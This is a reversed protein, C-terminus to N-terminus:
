RVARWKWVRRVEDPTEFYDEVVLEMEQGARLTGMDTGRACQGLVIMQEEALEVAAVGYPEFPDLAPYPPPPAFRNDTFSWLRGRNGLEVDDLETSRCAPNRCFSYQKPFFYAGCRPCRGGLLHPQGDAGSETFFGEVVPVRTKETM